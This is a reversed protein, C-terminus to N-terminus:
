SGLRLGRKTGTPQGAPDDADLVQRVKRLLDAGDFPKALFDEGPRLAPVLGGSGPGAYGSIFLVPLQHGAARVQEALARGGLDPMVLDAILLSIPFASQQM